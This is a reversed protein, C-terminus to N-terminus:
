ARGTCQLVEVFGLQSLPTALLLIANLPSLFLLFMCFSGTGAIRIATDSPGGDPDVQRQM